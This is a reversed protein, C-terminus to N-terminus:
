NKKGDLYTERTKTWLEFQSRRILVTLITLNNIHRACSMIPSAKEKRKREKGIKKRDWGLGVLERGGVGVWVM